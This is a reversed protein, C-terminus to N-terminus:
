NKPTLSRDQKRGSPEPDNGAGSESSGVKAVALERKGPKADIAKGRAMGTFGDNKEM